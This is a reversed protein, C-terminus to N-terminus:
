PEAMNAIRWVLEVFVGYGIGIACRSGCRLPVVMAGRINGLVVFVQPVQVGQGGCVMDGTASRLTRSDNGVDDGSHSDAGM